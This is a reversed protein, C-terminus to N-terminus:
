GTFTFLFHKLMIKNISYSINQFLTLRLQLMCVCVRMHVCLTM